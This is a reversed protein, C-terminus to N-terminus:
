NLVCGLASDEKSFNFKPLLQWFDRLILFCIEQEIKSSKKVKHWNNQGPNDSSVFKYDCNLGTEKLGSIKFM